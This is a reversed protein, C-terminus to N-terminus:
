HHDGVGVADRGAVRQRLVTPPSRYHQLDGGRTSSMKTTEQGAARFVMSSSLWEM